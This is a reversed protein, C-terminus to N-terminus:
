LKEYTYTHVLFSSDYFGRKSYYLPDIRGHSATYTKYKSTFNVDMSLNDNDISYSILSIIDKGLIPKVFGPDFTVFIPVSGFNLPSSLTKISFFDTQFLYAKISRADSNIGTVKTAILTNPKLIGKQITSINPETQLYHTFDQESISGLGIKSAPFLTIDAGTDFLIDSNYFLNIQNNNIILTSSLSCLLKIDFEDLFIKPM